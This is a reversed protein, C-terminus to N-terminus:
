RWPILVGQGKDKTYSWLEITPRLILMLMPTVVLLDNHNDLPSVQLQLVLLSPYGLQTMTM